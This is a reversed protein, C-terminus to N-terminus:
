DDLLDVGVIRLPYPQRTEFAEDGVVRAVEVYRADRLEWATLSVDDPDVGLVVPM